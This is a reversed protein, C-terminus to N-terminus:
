AEPWKLSTGSDITINQGTIASAKPSSLFLILEAVDLAKTARKLPSCSVLDAYKADENSYDGSYNPKVFSGPNVTNFRAGLHGFQEAYYRATVDLGAKVIHYNLGASPSIRTSNVSSTFIFSHDYGNDLFTLAEEVIAKTSQISVDIENELVGSSPNPRARQFFCAGSIKGSTEIIGRVLHRVETPSSLDIHGTGVPVVNRTNRSLTTTKIGNQEFLNKTVKGLGQSAGVMLFHKM